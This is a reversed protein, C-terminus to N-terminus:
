RPMDLAAAAARAVAGDDQSSGGSVGIAGVPHGEFMLPVGGEILVLGDLSLPGTAGSRLMAEFDSSPMNWAVATRAKGVATEISGQAAGDM